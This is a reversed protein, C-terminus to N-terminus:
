HLLPANDHARLFASRFDDYSERLIEMAHERLAVSTHGQWQAIGRRRSTRDMFSSSATVGDESIDPPAVNLGAAHLVELFTDLRTVASRLQRIAPAQREDPEEKAESALARYLVM